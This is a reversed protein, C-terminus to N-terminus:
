SGFLALKMAYEREVRNARGAGQRELAAVASANQALYIVRRGSLLATTEDIM